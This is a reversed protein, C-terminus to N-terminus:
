LNETSPLQLRFWYNYKNHARARDAPNSGHTRDRRALARFFQNTHPFLIQQPGIPFPILSQSCHTYAHLPVLGSQYIYINNMYMNYEHFIIDYLIYLIYIYLRRKPRFCMFGKPRRRRSANKIETKYIYIYLIIRMKSVRPVVTSTRSGRVSLNEMEVCIQRNYTHILIYCPRYSWDNEDWQLQTNNYRIITYEHFILLQLYRLAYKNYIYIYYITKNIESNKLLELFIYIKYSM